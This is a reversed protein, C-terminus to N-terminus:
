GERLILPLHLFVDTPMVRVTDSLISNVGDLAHLTVTYWAYNHVHEMLVMSRITSYPDTATYISATQTYYDIHWTSTAPLTIDVTWNLRITENGPIGHLTLRPVFEYAGIDWEPGQPRSIGVLDSRIDVGFRDKYLQLYVTEETGTNRAPSNTQLRFNDNSPDVFRPEAEICGEGKGTGNQFDTISNYEGHWNIRIPADDQYILNHHMESADALSKQTYRIHWGEAPDQINNIINNIIPHPETSPIWTYIGQGVNSITNGVIHVEGEGWFAIGRDSIDFIENGIVYLDVVGSSSVGSVANYITNFIIWNNPPGYHVTAAAGGSSASLEFDHMINQSYVVDAMCKLDIANEGNHHFHNRGIYAHHSTYPPNWNDNNGTRVSDGGMHHINNDIIWTYYVDYGNVAVGLWDNEVAPDRDGYDHIHNNYIVTHSVGYTVSNRNWSALSIASNNHTETGDGYMELHRIAIHHIDEELLLRLSIVAKDFELHEVVAYSGMVYLLRTFLPRDTASVGRFFVPRDATGRALLIMEGMMNRFSYPGGHIEVVSGAPLEAPFTERPIDATGYPNNDDTANQHTNDIYHTYPGNGADKYPGSVGGYDYTQSVYMYHTETIGFEPQPIGLPPTWGSDSGTMAQSSVPVTVTISEDARAAAAGRMGQVIVLGGLLVLAAIVFIQGLLKKM